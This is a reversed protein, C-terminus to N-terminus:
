SPTTRNDNIMLELKKIFSDIFKPKIWHEMQKLIEIAITFKRCLENHKRVLSVYKSHSEIMEKVIGLEFESLEFWETRGSGKWTRRRNDLLNHAHVETGNCYDPHSSYIVSCDGSGITTCRKDPDKSCGIKYFGSMANDKAIYVKSRGHWDMTRLATTM